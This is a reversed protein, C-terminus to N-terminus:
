QAPADDPADLSLLLEALATIADDTLDDSNVTWTSNDGRESM